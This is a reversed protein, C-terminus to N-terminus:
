VRFGQTTMSLDTIVTFCRNLARSGSIVLKWKWPTSHSRPCATQGRQSEDPFPSYYYSQRKPNNYSSFSISCSLFKPPTDTGLYICVIKIASNSLLSNLSNWLPSLCVPECAKVSWVLWSLSLKSIDLNYGALYTYPFPKGSGRTHKGWYANYVVM